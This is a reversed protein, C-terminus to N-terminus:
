WTARPPSSPPENLPASMTWSASRSSRSRWTDTSERRTVPSCRLPLDASVHLDARGSLPLPPDLTPPEGPAPHPRRRTVVWQGDEAPSAGTKGILEFTAADIRVEGSLAKSENYATRTVTPGVIFLPRQPGDGVVVEAVGTAVGISMSIRVTGLPTEIPVVRRLAALMALAADVARGAHGDGRFLLFLADGGFFLVDGGYPEIADILAGFCRDM